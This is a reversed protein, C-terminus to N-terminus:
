LSSFKPSPPTGFRYSSLSFRRLWLRKSYFNSTFLILTLGVKGDLLKNWQPMFFYKIGNVAGPLTCARILLIFMVVYPFVALFYSAKGSSHVGKALITTILIWACIVCLALKWDPIGIGDDLNDAAHFIVDRFYAAASGIVGSKEENGYVRTMTAASVCSKNDTTWQPLCETWPLPDNFSAFFYRFTLGLIAAYFTSVIGCAITQSYGLGRMAPCLDFVKITGRSSFQGILMELYYVPKGLVFLVILYPILFAGGGNELATNSFNSTNIYKCFILGFHSETKTNGQAPFRWINGLGVSMAICSFM